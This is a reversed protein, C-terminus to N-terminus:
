PLCWVIDDIVTSTYGAKDTIARVEDLTPWGPEGLLRADDIMVVHKETQHEDFIAHLEARLPTEGYTGATGPEGPHADLWILAPAFLRDLVVPLLKASDGYLARVEPHEVLRAIAADFQKDGLEITYVTDVVDLMALATEGDYTGTEVFTRLKNVRATQKLFERKGEASLMVDVM